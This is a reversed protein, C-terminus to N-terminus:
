AAQERYKIMLVIQDILPAFINMFLIAFMVGEVFGSLDRIIITIIGALMGYIWKGSSTYPATVSDTLMYAVCFLLGGSLLQFVPPAFVDPYITSFIWSFLGASILFAVPSRWNAVKSIILFLGGIIILLKSTEGIGGAVRGFFYNILAAASTVAEITYRNLAGIAERTPEVWRTTLEVPTGIPVQFVMEEKCGPGKVSVIKNVIPEKEVVAKYASIVAEPGLVVHKRKRVNGNNSFADLVIKRNEQPYKEKFLFDKLWESEDKDKIEREIIEKDSDNICLYFEATTFVEKLIKIGKIFKGSDRESVLESFYIRFPETSVCNIIVVDADNNKLSIRNKDKGVYEKMYSLAGYTYLMQELSDKSKEKKEKEQKRQDKDKETKIVVGHVERGLFKLETFDEVTGAAPAHVPLKM